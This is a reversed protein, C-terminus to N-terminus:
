VLQKARISLYCLVGFLGAICLTHILSAYVYFGTTITFVIVAGTAIQTVALILVATMSVYVDRVQRYHKRVIWYMYLIWVFLLLAGVRHLFAVGTAGTLEPVFEGNCLPWGICGGGSDTHRVFAGLYVVVYTYITLAWIENRYSRTVQPEKISVSEDVKGKSESHFAEQPLRWIYMTQLFASAFAILSFGFHLAMVASSTEWIVALAGLIAQLITFFLTASALLLVVRNRRLTVLVGIFAALVLLGEVGSVFRHSYEVVSEFTWEPLFKGYCLPWSDGCGEGSETKTVVAGGLLVLLMGFAMLASLWKLGQRM